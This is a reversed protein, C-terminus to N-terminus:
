VEEIDDDVAQRDVAIEIMNLVRKYSIPVGLAIADVLTNEIMDRNESNDPLEIAIQALLGLTGLYLMYLERLTATANQLEKATEDSILSDVENTDIRGGTVAKELQATAAQLANELKSINDNPTTIGQIM